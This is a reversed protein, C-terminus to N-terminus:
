PHQTPGTNIAHGMCTHASLLKCNLVVCELNELVAPSITAEELVGVSVPACPIFADLDGSTADTLSAIYPHATAGSASPAVVM